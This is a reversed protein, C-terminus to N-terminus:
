AAAVRADNCPKCLPNSRKPIARTRVFIRNCRANSCQYVHTGSVFDEVHRELYIPAYQFPFQNLRFSSQGEGPAYQDPHTTALVVTETYDPVVTRIAPLMDLDGSILVDLRLPDTIAQEVLRAVVSTDVMKEQYRRDRLREVLWGRLPVDFIGEDSFGAAVASDAFRRRAESNRRIYEIDGWEPDPEDPIRFIATYFYLAAADPGSGSGVARQGLQAVLVNVLRAFDLRFPTDPFEMRNAFIGNAGCQKFLWSGDVYINFEM